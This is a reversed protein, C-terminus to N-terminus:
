GTIGSKELGEIFYKQTFVYLCLIPAIIIIVAAASAAQAVVPDIVFGTPMLFTAIGGVATPLTLRTGWFLRTFYSDTWQWTFSFLFVTVMMTAACPLMVRYFIKFPNAGDVVGAEELENPLGRFFQSMLYIYLGNRLGFGSSSLLVFPWVSNILNLSDGTIAASIGFPNFFRFQFFQATLITQPPILLTLVVFVYLLRKFPFNFRGFGYGILTCSMVQLIAVLLSIFVSNILSEPIRMAQIALTFHELSPNRAIYRVTLDLLDDFSKIAELFHRFVPYMILYMICILVVYKIVSFLVTSPKTEKLKHYKRKWFGMREPRSKVITM